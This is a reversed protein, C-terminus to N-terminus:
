IGLNIGETSWFAQQLNKVTEYVLGPLAKYTARGALHIGTATHDDNTYPYGKELGWTDHFFWSFLHFFGM